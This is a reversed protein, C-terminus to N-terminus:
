AAFPVDIRFLYEVIWRFESDGERVPYDNIYKTSIHDANELTLVKPTFSPHGGFVWMLSEALTAALEKASRSDEANKAAYVHFLIPYSIEMRNAGSGKGSSRSEVTPEQQEFVCYPFPQGPTADGDHLSPYRTRDAVAWLQKFAHDLGHTSWNAAIAKHLSATTLSM